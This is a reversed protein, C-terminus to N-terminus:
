VTGHSSEKANAASSSAELRPLDGPTDIDACVSDDVPHRGEVVSLLASASLGDLGPRERRLEAIRSRLAELPARALLWQPHGTRDVLVGSDVALLASLAAVPDALDAPLVLIDTSAADDRALADLGAVADVGAAIAACPGGWRPSESVAAALAAGAEAPVEAGTVLVVPGCGRVADVTRELLTRGDVRHALKDSGFRSSRGGAVVIVAAPPRM